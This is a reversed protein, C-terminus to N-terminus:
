GINRHSTFSFALQPIRFTSTLGWVWSYVKVPSTIVDLVDIAWGLLKAMSEIAIGYDYKSLSIIGNVRSATIIDSVPDSLIDLV